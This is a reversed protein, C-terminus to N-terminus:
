YNLTATAAGSQAIAKRFVEMVSSAFRESQVANGPMARTVARYNGASLLKEPLWPLQFLRLGNASVWEHHVEPIEDTM